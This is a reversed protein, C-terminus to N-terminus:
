YSSFFFSFSVLMFLCDHLLILLSVLHILTELLFSDITDFAAFMNLFICVSFHSSSKAINLYSTVKVLAKKPSHYSHFGLQLLNLPFLFFHLYYFSSKMPIKCYFPVYFCFLDFSIHSWLLNLISSLYCTYVCGCFYNLVTLSSSAHCFLSFQPTRTAKAYVYFAQKAESSLIFLEELSFFFFFFFSYLNM